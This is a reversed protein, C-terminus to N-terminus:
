GIKMGKHHRRAAHSATKFLLMIDQLRGQGKLRTALVALTLREWRSVRPPRRQKRELIRRQQRLLLVEVGQDRESQRLVGVVDLGLWLLQALISWMM